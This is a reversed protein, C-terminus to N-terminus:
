PTLTTGLSGGALKAMLTTRDLGIAALGEADRDTDLEEPLGSGELKEATDNDGETRLVRVLEQKALKM